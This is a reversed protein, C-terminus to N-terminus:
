KMTLLCYNTKYIPYFILKKVYYSILHQNPTQKLSEEHRVQVYPQMYQGLVELTVDFKPNYKFKLDTINGLDIGISNKTSM